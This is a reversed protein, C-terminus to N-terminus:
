LHWGAARCDEGGGRGWGRGWGRRHPHMGGTTGGVRGQRLFSVPAM